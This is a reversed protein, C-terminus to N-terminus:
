ALNEVRREFRHARGHVGRLVSWVYLWALLVAVGASRVLWPVPWLVAAGLLSASMLQVRLVRTKMADPLLRQVGPLQVGRGCRRHLDTWGLFAVIEQAMGVVLLPLAIGLGLVGALLGNRVDYRLAWAALALLVLGARWSAVLPGHRLRPARWQLWLAALAFLLTHAAVVAGLWVTSGNVLRQWTGVLLMVLLSGLWVTQVPTPVSGTGQFMPMVVRAVSALLVVVWGLVGWSAHVDVLAWWPLALHGSLGLAFIGGLLSTIIASGIAAGFGARLLLNGRAKILGPVTMGGLVVFALPLLMSAAMLGVPWNWQLGAVLAAIGMNFEGHLWAGLWAHGCVPVGAAVPLFQLVSGFMANGLVGLVFAHVLALTSPEWRSHLASAGDIWLLAGAVMGWVPMSLLFRRPLSPAPAQDLALRTM